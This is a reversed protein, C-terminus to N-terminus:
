VNAFSALRADAVANRRLWCALWAEAPEMHDPCMVRVTESKAKMAEQVHTDGDGRHRLCREHCVTTRVCWERYAMDIEPIM